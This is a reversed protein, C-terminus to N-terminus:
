RKKVINRRLMSRQIFPSNHHTISDTYIHTLRSLWKFIHVFYYGRETSWHLTECSFLVSLKRVLLLSTWTAETQQLWPNNLRYWTAQDMFVFLGSYHLIWKIIASSSKHSTPNECPLMQNWMVTHLVWVTYLWVCCDAQIGIETNHSQHAHLAASGRSERCESWHPDANSANNCVSNNNLNGRLCLCLSFVPALTNLLPPHAQKTQEQTFSHKLATTNSQM